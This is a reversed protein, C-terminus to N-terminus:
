YNEIDVHVIDFGFDKVKQMILIELNTRERIMWQQYDASSRMLLDHFTIMDHRECANQFSPFIKSTQVYKEAIKDANFNVELKIVVRNQGVILSKIDHHSHIVDYNDLIKVVEKLIPSQLSRGSLLKANRTILLSGVFMLSSGIIVGGFSDFIPHISHALTLSTVAVISCFLGTTDELFVHISTSDSGNALYQSFTMQQKSIHEKIERWAGLFSYTELIAASGCLLVGYMLNIPVDPEVFNYVASAFAKGGM